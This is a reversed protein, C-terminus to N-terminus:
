SKSKNDLHDGFWGVHVKGTQGDTDDYFHIRPCPMGGTQVKVHAPMYIEGSVDVARDVELTRLARFRENQDTTESESLAIWGHPVTPGNGAQCYSILNMGDAEGAAKAEAYAQMARLARWAKRAWNQNMHRDLDAVGDELSPPMVVLSLKARAEDLVEECFGPDFEDPADEEVVVAAGAERIQQELRRVRTSLRDVDRLADDLNELDEERQERVEDLLRGLEDREGESIELLESYDKDDLAGGGELLPRLVERWPPPPEQHTASRLLGAAVLESAIASPRNALRRYPLWLHRRARDGEAGIGPLYTRIAGSHVDFGEGVATFMSRSLESTAGPGLLAVRAVGAVRRATESARQQAPAIDGEREEKTPSVVVIPVDRTGSLLEEVLTPIADAQLEVYERRMVTGARRCPYADLITGVLRPAVPVWGREFADKAWREVDVWAWRTTGDDIATFTTRVSEDDRREFLHARYGESGQDAGRIARIEFGEDLKVIEGDLPVEVEPLRKTKLWDGFSSHAEDVFAEAEVEFVSRYILAM